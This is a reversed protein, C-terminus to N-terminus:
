TVVIEKHFKWKGKVRRASYMGDDTWVIIGGDEEDRVRSYGYITKVPTSMRIAQSVEMADKPDVGSTWANEELTGCAVFAAAIAVPAFWRAFSM